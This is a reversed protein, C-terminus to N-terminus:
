VLGLVKKEAYTLKALVQEKTPLDVAVEKTKIEYYRGAEDQWLAYQVVSVDDQDIRSATINALNQNSYYSHVLQHGDDKSRYKVAWCYERKRLNTM